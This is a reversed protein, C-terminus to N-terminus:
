MGANDIDWQDHSAADARCINVAAAHVDIILHFLKVSESFCLISVLASM